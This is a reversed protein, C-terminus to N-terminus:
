KTTVKVYTYDDFRNVSQFTASNNIKAFSSSNNVTIWDAKDKIFVIEVLDNLYNYKDCPCPTGSPNVTEKRNPQGIIKEIEKKNKGSLNDIIVVYFKTRSNKFNEYEQTQIYEKLETPNKVYENNSILERLVFKDFDMTSYNTIFDTKLSDTWLSQQKPETVSTEVKKSNQDTCSSIVFLGVLLPAVFLNMKKM